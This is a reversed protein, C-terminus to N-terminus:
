PFLPLVSIDSVYRAFDTTNYTLLWQIGYRRM